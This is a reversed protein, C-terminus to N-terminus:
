GENRHVWPLNIEVQAWPEHATETEAFQERLREAVWLGCFRKVMELEAGAFYADHDKEHDEPTTGPVVGMLIHALEHAINLDCVATYSFHIEWNKEDVQVAGSMGKMPYVVTVFRVPSHDRWWKRKLFANVHAQAGDLSLYWRVPGILINEATYLRDRNGNM